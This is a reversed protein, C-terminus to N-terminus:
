RRGRLKETRVMQAVPEGDKRAQAYPKPLSPAGRDPFSQRIPGYGSRWKSVKRMALHASHSPLGAPRASLVAPDQWVFRAQPPAPRWSADTFKSAKM